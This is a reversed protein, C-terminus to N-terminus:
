IQNESNNNRKQILEISKEVLPSLTRRLSYTQAFLHETLSNHNTYSEIIMYYDPSDTYYSLYLDVSTSVSEGSPNTVTIYADLVCDAHGVSDFTGGCLLTGRSAQVDVTYEPYNYVTAHIDVVDCETPMIPPDQQGNENYYTYILPKDPILECEFSVESLYLDNIPDPFDPDYVSGRIKYRVSSSLVASMDDKNAVDILPNLHLWSYSTEKYLHKMLTRYNIASFSTSADNTLIEGTGYYQAVMKASLLKKVGQYPDGASTMVPVLTKSNPRILIANHESSMNEISGMSQAIEEVADRAQEVKESAEVVAKKDQAVKTVSQSVFEVGSSVSNSAEKADNMYQRAIEASRSARSAAEIAQVALSKVDPILIKALRLESSIGWASSTFEAFDLQYTGSNQAFLNDKRLPKLAFYETENVCFMRFQVSKDQSLQIEAIIHFDQALTYSGIRQSFPSTIKVRFGSIILEGTGVAITESDPLYLPCEELIGAIIGSENSAVFNNFAAGDIHDNEVGLSELIKYEM